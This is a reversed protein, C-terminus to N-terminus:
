NWLYREDYDIDHKLLFSIYEEKFTMKRHHEEQTDIYKIVDPVNSKSVSFAGYGEQWGFAKQKPWKEHIWRSSNAKIKQMAESASLSPPLSMLIHLHDTTGNIAYAKGKINRVIGGIVPLLEAKMESEILPLRDKISFIGHILLNIYTHAM